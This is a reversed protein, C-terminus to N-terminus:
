LQNQTGQLRLRLPLFECNESTWVFTITKILKSLAIHAGGAGDLPGSVTARRGVTDLLDHGKGVGGSDHVAVVMLVAVAKAVTMAVAETIAEAVAEVSHPRGLNGVSRPLQPQQHRIQLHLPRETDVTVHV